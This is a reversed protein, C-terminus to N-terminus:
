GCSTGGEAVARSLAESHHGASWGAQRPDCACPESVWTTAGAAIMRVRRNNGARRIRRQLTRHEGAGAARIASEAEIDMPRDGSSLRHLPLRTTPITIPLSPNSASSRGACQHHTILELCSRSMSRRITTSMLGNCSLKDALWRPIHTRHGLTRIADATTSQGPVLQTFKRPDPQDRPVHQACAVLVLPALPAFPSTRM